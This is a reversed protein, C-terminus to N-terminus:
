SNELNIVFTELPLYISHKWSRSWGITGVYHLVIEQLGERDYIQSVSFCRFLTEDSNEYDEVAHSLLDSPAGKIDEAEDM